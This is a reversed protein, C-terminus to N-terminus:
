DNLSYILTEFKISRNWLNLQICKIDNNIKSLYLNVNKLTIILNTLNILSYKIQLSIYIYNLNIFFREILQTVLFLMFIIKSYTINLIKLVKILQCVINDIIIEYEIILFLIMIYINYLYHIFIIKSVYYPLFLLKYTMFVDIYTGEKHIVIIQKPLFYKLLNINLNSNIYFINYIIIYIPIIKSSQHLINSKQSYKTFFYIAIISVTIYFIIENIYPIVLIGVVLYNILIFKNFRNDLIIRLFSKNVQNSFSYKYLNM